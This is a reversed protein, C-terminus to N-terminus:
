RVVLYVVRAGAYSRLPRFGAVKPRGYYISPSHGLRRKGDSVCEKQRCIHKHSGALVASGAMEILVCESGVMYVGHLWNEIPRGAM